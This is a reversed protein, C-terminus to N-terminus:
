SVCRLDRRGYLAPNDRAVYGGTWGTWSAKSGPTAESLRRRVRYYYREVPGGADTPAPVVTVTFNFRGASLSPRAPTAPADKDTVAISLNYTSTHVRAPNSVWLVIDYTNDGGIDSPQEYDPVSRFRLTANFQGTSNRFAPDVLEFLSADGAGADMTIQGLSAPDDNDTAVLRIDRSGEPIQVSVDTADAGVDLSGATTLRPKGHVRLSFSDEVSRVRRVRRMSAQVKIDYSGADGAAPTGSFTRTVPDFSLWAPLLGGNSPGALYTVTRGSSSVVEPFSYEFQKGERAERPAGSLDLPSLTSLSSGQGVMVESLRNQKDHSNGYSYLRIYRTRTTPFHVIKGTATEDYEGDGGRGLGASDDLDNNFVTTM